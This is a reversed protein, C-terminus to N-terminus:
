SISALYDVLNQAYKPSLCLSLLLALLLLLAPVIWRIKDTSKQWLAAGAETHLSLHSLRRYGQLALPLITVFYPMTYQSKAEWFTHFVFGGVLIVALLNEGSHRKEPSPMWAWLLLGGYVLTTFYSGLKTLLTQASPSLLKEAFPPLATENFKALNQNIWLGQFTPDNWQTANKEVFFNAASRPSQVFHTLINRLDERILALHAQTNGNVANYGTRLYNSYWGPGFEGNTQLGMCIWGLHPLGNRLPYGTLHELLLVPLKAGALFAALLVACFVSAYRVWRLVSLSRCSARYRICLLYALCFLLGQLLATNPTLWSHEKIDIFSRFVLNSVFLWSACLAFVVRVTRRYFFSFHDCRSAM